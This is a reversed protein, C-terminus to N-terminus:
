PWPITIANSYGLENVSRLTGGSDGSCDTGDKLTIATNETAYAANVAYGNLCQIVELLYGVGPADPVATWSITVSGGNRVVTVGGPVPVDDRPYLNPAVVGVAHIDGNIEVASLAVWCHRDLGPPQVFAWTSSYDRGEVATREGQHLVGYEIYATGPGWRCNANGEVAEISLPEPTATESPTPTLTASPTLTATATETQTATESPTSTYTDTATPLPTASPEPSPSACASALALALLYIGGRCDIRDRVKM